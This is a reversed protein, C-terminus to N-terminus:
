ATAVPRLKLTRLIRWLAKAILIAAIVGAVPL